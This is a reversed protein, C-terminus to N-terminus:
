DKQLNSKKEGKQICSHCKVGLNEYIHMQM